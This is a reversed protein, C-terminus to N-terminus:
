DTIETLLEMRHIYAPQYPAAVRSEVSVKPNWHHNLTVLYPKGEVKWYDLQMTTTPRTCGSLIGEGNKLKNILETKTM